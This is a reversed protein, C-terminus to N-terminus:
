VIYDFIPNSCHLCKGIKIMEKACKECYINDGCNLYVLFGENACFLCNKKFGDLIDDYNKNSFAHYFLCKDDCEKECTKHLFNCGQKSCKGDKKWNQCMKRHYLSCNSDNCKQTAKFKECDVHEFFCKDKKNCDGYKAWAACSKNDTKKKTSFKNNDM